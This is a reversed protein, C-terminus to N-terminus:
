KKAQKFSLINKYVSSTNSRFRRLLFLLNSFATRFGDRSVVMQVIGILILLEDYNLLFLQSLWTYEITYRYIIMTHCLVAFALLAAQKWADRDFIMISLLAFCTLIEIILAKNRDIIYEAQNLDGESCFYINVICSLFIIVSHRVPQGNGFFVIVFFYVIM